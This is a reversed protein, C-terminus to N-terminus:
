ISTNKFPNEACNLPTQQENYMLEKLIYTARVFVRLERLFGILFRETHGILEDM